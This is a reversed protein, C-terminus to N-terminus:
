LPRQLGLEESGGGGGWGRLSLGAKSSMTKEGEEAGERQQRYGKKEEVM